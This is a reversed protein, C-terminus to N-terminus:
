PINRKSPARQRRREVNQQRRQETNKIKRMERRHNLCEKVLEPARYAILGGIVLPISMWAHVAVVGAAIEIAQQLGKDM